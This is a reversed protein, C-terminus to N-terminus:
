EEESEANMLPLIKAYVRITGGKYLEDSRVRYTFDLNNKELKTKVNRFGMSISDKQNKSEKPTGVKNVEYVIYVKGTNSVLTKLSSESFYKSKLTKLGFRQREEPFESGDEWLKPKFETM